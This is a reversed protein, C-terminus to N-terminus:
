LLRVKLLSRVGEGSWEARSPAAIWSMGVLRPCSCTLEPDTGLTPSGASVVVDFLSTAGGPHEVRRLYSARLVKLGVEEHVERVVADEPTEGADIGGGPLTLYEVGDHRGSVGRARQRVMLVRGDREIIGAVRERVRGTQADASCASDM